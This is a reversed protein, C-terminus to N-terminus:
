GNCPIYNNADDDWHIDIANGDIIGLADNPIMTGAAGSPDHGFRMLALHTNQSLFSGPQVVQQVAAVTVEWRTLNNDEDWVTNMSTSYDMIFMVNPKKFICDGEDPCEDGGEATAEEGHSGIAFALGIGALLGAQLGIRKWNDGLLRKM